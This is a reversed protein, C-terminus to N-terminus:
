IGIYETFINFFINLRNDSLIIARLSAHYLYSKQKTTDFLKLNQKVFLIGMNKIVSNHHELVNCLLKTPLKSMDYNDIYEGCTPCNICQFRIMRGSASIDGEDLGFSWGPSNDNEVFYKSMSCRTQSEKILSNIKEKCEERLIRYLLAQKYSIHNYKKEM